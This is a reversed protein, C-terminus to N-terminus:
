PEGVNRFRSGNGVPFPGGRRVQEFLQPYDGPDVGEWGLGDQDAERWLTYGYKHALMTLIAQETRHEQFGSREPGLLSPEFTTAMPNIAYTLWEFLLQMPKYPGVKFAAWRACGAPVDPAMYDPQGSIRKEELAQANLGMTWECDRTCWSVQKQGCARFLMAGDRAATDFIVSLDHIPIVDADIFCFVDGPACRDMMELCVLAKWAYLGFGRGKPAYARTGEHDWLWANLQRFEHRDLWVDDFVLFEDAGYQKHTAVVHATIDDYASGGFTCLWRKVTAGV